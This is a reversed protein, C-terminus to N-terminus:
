PESVADLQPESVAVWHMESLAELECDPELQTGSTLQLASGVAGSDARVQLQLAQADLSSFYRNM